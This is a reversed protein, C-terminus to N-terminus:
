LSTCRNLRRKISRVVYPNYRLINRQQPLLRARDIIKLLLDKQADEHSRYSRALLYLRYDM